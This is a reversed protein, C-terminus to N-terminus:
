HLFERVHASKWIQSVVLMTAFNPQPVKLPSRPAHGWDDVSHIKVPFVPKTPVYDRLAQKTWYILLTRHAGGLTSTKLAVVLFFNNVKELLFHVRAAETGGEWHLIRVRAQELYYTAIPVLPLSLLRRGM